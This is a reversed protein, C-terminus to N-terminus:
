RAEALMELARNLVIDEHEVFMAHASEPTLEVTTDPQLAGNGARDPVGQPQGDEGLSQRAPYYVGYNGPLTLEVTPTGPSGWSGSLGCVRVNERPQLFRAVSEAPGMTYADVLVVVPGTFAPPQPAVTVAESAEQFAGSDDDWIGPTEYFEPAEVFSSLLKPVLSADGGQTGRLDLILGPAGADVTTRMATRFDRAPFPTSLTPAIAALRLYQIDGELTNLAVPSSFLEVAEWLPRYLSLSAYGDAEREVTATKPESAGPNQFAIRCSEGEPGRPLWTLQQELRGGPTAAPADSWLVSTQDLAEAIPKDDWTLVVAGWQIGARDAPGEPVIGSVIVQGDHLRALALGASGAEAADRLTEQADIQVNGDPIAHIYTRLAAYWRDRDKEAQAAAVEPAIAAYLGNWDVQKVATYAYERGVREHLIQFAKSWNRSRLDNQGRLIVPLPVDLVPLEIGTVPIRATTCGALMTLGALLAAMARSRGSPSHTYTNM